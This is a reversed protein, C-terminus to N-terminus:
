ICVVEQSYEKSPQSQIKKNKKQLAKKKGGWIFPM